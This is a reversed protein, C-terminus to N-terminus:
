ISGPQHRKGQRELEKLDGLVAGGDAALSNSRLIVTQTNVDTRFREQAQYNAANWGPDKATTPKVVSAVNGLLTKYNQEKGGQGGGQGGGGVGPMKYDLINQADDAVRGSVQKRIEPIM